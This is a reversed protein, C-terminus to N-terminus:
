VSVELTMSLLDLDVPNPQTIEFYPQRDFGRLPVPKWGTFKEPVQNLTVDGFRSLSVKIEEGRKTTVTFNNSNLLNFNARVLRVREGLIGARPDTPPLSRILPTWPLGVEISGQLSETTIAGSSVANQLLPYGDQSRISVAAGELHGLGSWSATDPDNSLLKGADTYYAYDFKEIYRVVSSDITRKVIVYVSNGVVVLDEYAGATEWLSWAIFSQSRKRNLVAITGDSNCYYSYEGSLRTQAKQLAIRTPNKILHESVASIDDSVYSQEIDLFLYERVIQGSQEVFITAGDSSIPRIRSVGHRTARELKFNGPTLTQTSIVPSFYEAAQSFIQLTRGGFVYEIANVEDDDITAEIADDDDGNGLAFNFFGALQSGWITSPRSRSGGFWLRQQFFTASRPWGRTASWVAEGGSGFDFTPINSLSLASAAWSTSSSRVIKLPPLDHHVLIVTDLSQIYDMSNIIDATLTSLNTTVTAQLVDDEYVKLEGPTFALLYTQDINFQFSVLRGQQSTTTTAVYKSGPRRKIGGLPAVYVNRLRAAGNLYIDRDVRGLLAPSIEGAAFSTQNLLTKAM